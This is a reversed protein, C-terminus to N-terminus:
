VLKNVPYKNAGIIVLSDKANFKFPIKDSKKVTEPDLAHLLVPSTTYASSPIMDGEEFFNAYLHLNKVVSQMLSHSKLVEIENDVVKNTAGIDISKVMDENRAEREEKLMIAAAIEYQPPTKKLYFWAAFLSVIVFFIFLPWYPLYKFLVTGLLSKSEKAAATKNPTAAM